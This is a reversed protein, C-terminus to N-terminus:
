LLTLYGFEILCNHFEQLIYKRLASPVLAEIGLRLIHRNPWMAPRLNRVIGFALRVSGPREMLKDFVLIWAIATSRSIGAHCHILLPEDGLDRSFRIAEQIDDMTAAFFGDAPSDAEVDDFHLIKTSRAGPFSLPPEGNRGRISLINWGALEDPGLGLVEHVSAIMMEQKVPDLCRGTPVVTSWGPWGPAANRSFPEKNMRRNYSLPYSM